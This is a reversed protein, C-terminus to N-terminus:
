ILSSTFVEPDALIVDATGQYHATLLAVARDADGDIVAKLIAEHEDKVNRTPYVKRISLQRYRYLLDAQQECYGVLWRSGCGIILQRHFLRHLREWEPNSDFVDRSLSRPAKALRHWALVLAEEWEQSAASMSERLAREELWCRTKTLERLEDASIGSVVFGRQDRVEVLGESALRNLAERIPTQGVNYQNMLYKLQLRRSPKLRGELLDRRLRDCLASAQTAARDDSHGDKLSM